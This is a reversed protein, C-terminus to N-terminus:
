YYMINHTDATPNIITTPKNANFPNFNFVANMIILCLFLIMMVVALVVYLFHMGKFCEVSEKVIDVKGDKCKLMLLMVESVPVLFFVCLNSTVYSTFSVSFAYFKSEPKNFSLTM